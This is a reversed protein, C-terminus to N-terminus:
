FFSRASLISSSSLERFISNLIFRLYHHYLHPSLSVSFHLYFELCSCARCRCQFIYIFLIGESIVQMAAAVKFVVRWSGAGAAVGAEVGLLRLIRGPVMDVGARLIGGYLLSSGLSGLRSGAAVLGLVKAWEGQGFKQRTTKSVLYVYSIIIAILFVPNTYM